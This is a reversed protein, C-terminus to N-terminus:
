GGNTLLAIVLIALALWGIAYMATVPREYDRNIWDAWQRLTRPSPSGDEILQRSFHIRLIHEPIWPYCREKFVRWEDRYPYSQHASGSGEGPAEPGRVELEIRQRM